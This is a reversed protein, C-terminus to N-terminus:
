IFMEGIFAPTTANAWSELEQVEQGVLALALLFAGAGLGNGAQQSSPVMKHWSSETDPM